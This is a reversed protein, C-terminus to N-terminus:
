GNRMAGFWAQFTVINWLLYHVRRRGSLHDRWLRRVAPIDFVGSSQLAPETLLNEAWPRLEGTLWSEIPVSFGRKPRVYLERPLYRDLVQRLLWKGQGDRLHVSTPVSAAFEVLRHDLLPIRGELSAAMATRDVKVLIDDPLYSISDLYQMVRTPDVLGAPLPADALMSGSEVGGLVLTGPDGVHSVLRRYFSRFESQQLMEGLIQAKGGADRMRWRAPLNRGLAAIVPALSSDPVGALSRGIFRRLPAPAIGFSRWLTRAHHYRSYGAFLEDGGDGSLAVTVHQRAMRAVMFAPIQSSDAFPEDFLEPLRHAIEMADQPEVYLESHDTGLHRAVAAAHAAENMSPDRVGLTFTKVPLKSHEQMLAVITSSDIGGSLFAGLSVDSVMRWRVAERLLDATHEAAEEARGRFPREAGRAFADQMSWYTHRRRLEVRGARCAFSLVVGPEVKYVGAFISHPAPIYNHRIFLGVSAREIDPAFSPWARIARLESAFVLEGRNLCWYLPKEGCRDRALHLVREKRDWLAFAFMGNFEALAAELGWDEVAALMVETDSHGRFSRGAKELRDRLLKFNYIEGNYAIVYRGFASHMPQHGEPSLDIIALRRHGLALGADRDWWTGADDPGRYAIADAMARAVTDLQVSKNSTCWVGTLGCM